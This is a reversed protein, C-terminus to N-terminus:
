IGARCALQHFIIKVTPLIKGEKMATGQSLAEGMPSMNIITRCKWIDCKRFMSQVPDGNMSKLFNKVIKKLIAM